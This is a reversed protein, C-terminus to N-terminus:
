LPCRRQKSRTYIRSTVTHPGSGSLPACLSRHEVTHEVIWAWLSVGHLVIWCRTTSQIIQALPSIDLHTTSRVAHLETVNEALHGHAAARRGPERAIQCILSQKRKKEVYDHRDGGRAWTAGLIRAGSVAHGHAATSPGDAAASACCRLCRVQIPRLSRVAAVMAGPPEGPSALLQRLSCRRCTSCAAAAASPSAFLAM